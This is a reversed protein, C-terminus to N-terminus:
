MPYSYEVVYTVDWGSLMGQGVIRFERHMWLVMWMEINICIWLLVNYQNRHIDTKRISTILSLSQMWNM